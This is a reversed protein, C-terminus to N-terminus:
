CGLFIPEAKLMVRQPLRSPESKGGKTSKPAVFLVSFLKLGCIVMVFERWELGLSNDKSGSSIYYVSGGEKMDAM